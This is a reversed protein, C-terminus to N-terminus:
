LLWKQLGMKFCEYKWSFQKLLYMFKPLVTVEIIYQRAMQLIIPSGM